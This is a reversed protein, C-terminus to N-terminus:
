LHTPKKTKRKQVVNAGCRILIGRIKIFEPYKKGIKFCYRKPMIEKIIKNVFFEFDRKIKTKPYTSIQM